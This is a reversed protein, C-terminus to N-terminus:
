KREKEINNFIDCSDNLYYYYDKFKNLENKNANDINKMRMVCLSLFLYRSINLHM